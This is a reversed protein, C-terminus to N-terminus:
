RGARFSIPLFSFFKILRVRWKYMWCCFENKLSYPNISRNDREVSIIKGLVQDAHVPEDFFYSADGRFIYSYHMHTSQKWGGKDDYDHGINEIDIVRHAIIHENAQYLIIDGKKVEAHKIPAVILVDGDIITPRMSKGPARFRVNRGEKLLQSILEPFISSDSECLLSDDDLRTSFKQLAANECQRAQPCSNSHSEM